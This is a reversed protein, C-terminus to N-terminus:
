EAEEGGGEAAAVAAAVADAVARERAAAQAAAFAALKANVAAAGFTDVLEPVGVYWTGYVGNADTESRRWRGNIAYELARERTHPLANGRAEEGM